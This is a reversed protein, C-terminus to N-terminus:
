VQSPVVFPGRYDRTLLANAERDNRFRETKPDFNLTRGTRFAINALHCLASSYYGEEIDAHLDEIKGSRVAVHFNAIHDVSPGKCEPGPEKKELMIEVPGDTGRIAMVGKSGYFLNGVTCGWEDNTQRGRVEFVLLTGDEYQMTAIQTNPTVGQDQYTYRGGMSAVKVPLTRGLGWRAIDMQHVGQNGIDGNGYEWNWHWNYHFRNKNFPQVHAPGTWLDYHVGAPAQAEDQEFGISGRGKFCLARAMHVEGIVGERLMEMARRVDGASRAQTGHQVIRNYKRAAEVQKRGEFVNHCCPKEVYVDKGTQCAWIAALAHWHNPTAISVADVGKDDMVRRLDYETKPTPNGAAEVVKIQGAYLSEDVDCLTVVRVNKAKAHRSVHGKGQGNFGICAVRIEENPGRRPPPVTATPRWGGATRDQTAACGAVAAAGATFSSKLFRRRDIKSM